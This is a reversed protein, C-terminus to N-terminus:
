DGFQRDRPRTTPVVTGRDSVYRDAKNAAILRGGIKFYLHGAGGRALMRAAYWWEGPSTLVWPDDETGLGASPPVMGPLAQQLMALLEIASFRSEAGTSKVTIRLFTYM